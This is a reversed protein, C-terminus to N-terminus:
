TSWWTPARLGGLAFRAPGARPRDNRHKARPLTATSRRQASTTHLSCSAQGEIPATKSPTPTPM